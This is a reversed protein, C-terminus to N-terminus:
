CLLCIVQATVGDTASDVLAPLEDIAIANEKEDTHGNGLVPLDEVSLAKYKPEAILEIQQGDTYQGVNKLLFIGSVPNLDGTLLSQEIFSIVVGAAMNCAESWESSCNEGKRWKWFMQRSVGLALSLSEFGPRFGVTGCFIFYEDIREKLEAVAAPKGRKALERLSRVAEATFEKGNLRQLEGGPYNSDKNGM